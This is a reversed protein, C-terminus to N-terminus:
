LLVSFFLLMLVLLSFEEEAVPGTAIVLAFLTYSSCGFKEKTRYKNTHNKIQRKLNPEISWSSFRFKKETKVAFALIHLFDSTLLKFRTIFTDM